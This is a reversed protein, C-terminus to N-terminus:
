SKTYEVDEEVSVLTLPTDDSLVLEYQRSYYSGNRNLTGRFETNGIQTLSVTRENKWDSSGDDRWRITMSTADASDTIETRKLRFILRNSRKRISDSNHNIHPTRILTRLTDSNDDYTEPDLTYIKGSSRDGVLAKNWGIAITHCNGLWNEYAAESSNWYGWEYWYSKIIDWVLTKEETPFTLVYYPRGGVHIYDGLADTVTTFGDIYKNMTVSLVQPTRSDPSMRVVNREQDLWYLVDACVRFSYPAICGSNIYGQSQRVFPTSGDDYWVELTRKGMLYLELNESIVAVLDDSKAEATVYEADWTTPAGVASYHLYASGTENALLYTDLEVPHSVTTPADADVMATTTTTTIAIIKAGNAAYLTSGFNSFEVRTGSEFEDGGSIQAKTGDSATIKYIEGDSIAIVLSQDDWWYLGDVAAGTGLDCLLSLGPRRHVNGEEDVWCDQLAAGYGKLGIEDIAKNLGINFPLKVIAM